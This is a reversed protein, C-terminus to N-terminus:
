RNKSDIIITVPGDNILSVDMMAGFIGTQVKINEHRLKDNFEDYLQKEERLIRYITSESALYIGKDALLPVIENPSLNKYEPQNVVKLIEEREKKTLKNKPAKKLLLDKIKM